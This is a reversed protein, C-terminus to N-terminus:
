REAIAKMLQGPNGERAHTLEGLNRVFSTVVHVPNRVACPGDLVEGKACQIIETEAERLLM